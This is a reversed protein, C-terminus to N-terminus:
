KKKKTATEPTLLEHPEVGFVTCLQALTVSTPSREAKLLRSVNGSSWGLQRALEGQTWPPDQLALLRRVGAALAAAIDTPEM